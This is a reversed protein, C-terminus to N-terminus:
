DERIVLFLEYINIDMLDSVVTPLRALSHDQGITHKEQKQLPLIKAAERRNIWFEIFKFSKKGFWRRLRSIKQEFISRFAIEGEFKANEPRFQDRKESINSFNRFQLSVIKM